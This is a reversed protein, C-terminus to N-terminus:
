PHLLKAVNKNRPVGLHRAVNECKAKLLLLHPVRIKMETITEANAMGKAIVFSAMRYAELFEKSCESIILGMADNGTTIVEDVIDNIKIFLADELTADNCSPKEKVAVIVRCGLNKLEKAFLKDLVLEGANDALYLITEGKKVYRFAMYIDDIALDREAEIILGYLDNFNFTYGPIGFEIANGVIACLCARRFRLYSSKEESLLKEAFPLIKMAETNSLMKKEAMPDNNGTVNRIIRERMTGLVAPVANPHFNEALMKLLHNIAMFRLEMNETAEVIELYGRQLLCPACEPSVKM